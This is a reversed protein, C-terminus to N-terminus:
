GLSRSPERRVENLQRRGLDREGSVVGHLPVSRGVLGSDKRRGRKGRREEELNKCWWHNSVAIIQQDM